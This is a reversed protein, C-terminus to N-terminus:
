TNRMDQKPAEAEEFNADEVFGADALENLRQEINEAFEGCRGLIEGVTSTGDIMILAARLKPSLHHARTGIEEAGKPTKTLISDTKLM